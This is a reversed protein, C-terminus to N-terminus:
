IRTRKFISQNIRKKDESDLGLLYVLVCYIVVIVIGSVVLHLWSLGKILKLVWYSVALSLIVPVSMRLYCKKAFVKINIETKLEIIVATFISRFMYAFFISVCAGMVGFKTSLIFSLVVNILGMAIAVYARYNVLNKVIITTTGIQLSNYFISPVIVLLIGYYAMLYEKGMWLTIFERGVLAFGVIILGNVFFQFKGVNIALNTLRKDSDDLTVINSIKPLFMGDIASTITYSYGEITVVIGFIAIDWSANAAVMGLITPTITFILRQAISAVTTWASFTVLEKAEDKDVKHHTLKVRVNKRVFYYKYAIDVLGALSQAAVLGYLGYDNILAVVTTVIVLIRYLMDAFKMPIFKEYAQLIGSFTVCPFSILAYGGAICYVVKLREIEEPSFQRYISSLNFFVAILVAFIIFDILLYLKYITALFSEIKEQNGEVRYKAVFRSVSASLGFDILFLTIISNALTYLGYDSTGIQEIMWPTYVLGAVINLIISLYSLVAGVKVQDLRKHM